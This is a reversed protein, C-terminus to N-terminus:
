AIKKFRAKDEEIFMTPACNIIRLYEYVSYGAIACKLVVEERTPSVYSHLSGPFLQYLEDQSVQTLNFNKDASYLYVGTTVVNEYKNKIRLLLVVKEM